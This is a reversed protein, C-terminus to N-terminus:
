TWILLVSGTLVVSAPTDWLSYTSWGATDFCQVSRLVSVESAENVSAAGDRVSNGLGVAHLLCSFTSVSSPRHLLSLRSQSITRLRRCVPTSCCPQAECGCVVSWWYLVSWCSSEGEWVTIKRKILRTTWMLELSPRTGSLLLVNVLQISKRHGFWCYGCCVGLVM